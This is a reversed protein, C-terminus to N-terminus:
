NKEGADGIQRSFLDREAIEAFERVFRLQDALEFRSGWDNHPNNTLIDVDKFM